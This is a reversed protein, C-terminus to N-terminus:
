RGKYIVKKKYKISFIINNKFNKIRKGKINVVNKKIMKRNKIGYDFLVFLLTLLIEVTICFLEM